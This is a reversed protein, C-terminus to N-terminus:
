AQQGDKGSVSYAAGATGQSVARARVKWQPTQRIMMVQVRWHTPPIEEGGDSLVFADTELDEDDDHEPTDGGQASLDDSAGSSTDEEESAQAAEGLPRAAPHIKRPIRRRKAPFGSANQSKKSRHKRVLRALRSAKM